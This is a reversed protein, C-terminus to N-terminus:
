RTGSPGAPEFADRPVFRTNYKLWWHESGDAPPDIPVEIPLPAVTTGDTVNYDCDKELGSSYFFYSRVLGPPVPPLSKAAFGLTVADGANIIAVREDLDTVLERVDGYRTCWGEMMMRWPPRENVADHEPTDPGGPVRVRIDSFGRWHLDASAPALERISEAPLDTWEMLAIRDWAIEFTTTLRLRFAESPLKGALDVLITKTKGAPMGVVVDVAQWGGPTEAALTPPIVPYVSSQSLAINTSAQGYRLWGTLALVYPREVDLPGFDLTLALPYCSGRFPPPLPRGPPAYVDDLAAVARTRDVGDDGTARSPARGAHVARIQSPPFPEPMIKDTSHVEVEPLHDVAILRVTDLYLVECFEESIRTTYRGARPRFEEGTGVFVIEETDAPLIVGRAIPLGLPANGLIDTVFRFGEGDWAYLFPCSGTAVVKERVDRPANGPEVDMQNEIVGNSWVTQVSDLKDRRAVGIEIPIDTVARTTQTTGRRVEIRTGLGSPNTKVTTLHLKLQANRSGGDNRLVHLEGGGTLLLDTDGDSDVDVAAMARIVPMVLSSLGTAASVDQWVLRGDADGANRWLRVAGQAGSGGLCLDLWGDNDYDILVGATPALGGLALVPRHSVRTLQTVVENSGILVGDVFGNNTLDNLLVRSAPAWPGPPESLGAFEGTRQNKFVRTPGEGRAVILDVAVDRDLDAAAVGVAAVEDSLGVDGTVDAFTGDGNNQWLRPGAQTALLLDLDGDHEYDVWVADRAKVGKLGAADAVDRFAPKGDSRGQKLLAVGGAGLVLVDAHAHAAFDFTAGEPVDNQFDGVRCSAPGLEAPVAGGLETRTLVGGGASGTLVSCEGDPGVVFVSPRGQRDVDLVCAASASAAGGPLMERTADVFRVEIPEPREAAGRAAVAPEADTYACRELADVSRTEDGFLKRLRMFEETRKRFGDRDQAQRAYAGLKFHASAHLPDLKVTALLQAKAKEHEAEAQYASALQYRLAATDPDLKVARELHPVATEFKSMRALAIGSLYETAVSGPEVGAATALTRAAADFDGALFYARALNRWAAASDADLETAKSLAEIAKASDRNELQAKGVNMLRVFEAGTREAGV